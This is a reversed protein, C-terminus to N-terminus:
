TAEQGTRWGIERIRASLADAYRTAEATEDESESLIAYVTAMLRLRQLDQIMGVFSGPLLDVLMTAETPDLHLLKFRRFTMMM